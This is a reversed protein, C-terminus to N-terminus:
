QACMKEFINYMSVAALIWFVAALPLEATIGATALVAAFHGLSATIESM